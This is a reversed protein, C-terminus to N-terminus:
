KKEENDPLPQQLAKVKRIRKLEKNLEWPKTMKRRMFGCKEKTKPDIENCLFVRVAGPHFAGCKPCKSGKVMPTGKPYKKGGIEQEEKLKFFARKRMNPIGM